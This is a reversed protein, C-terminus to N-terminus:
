LRHNNRLWKKCAKKLKKFKRYSIADITCDDNYEIRCDECYSRFTEWAKRPYFLMQEYTAICSGEANVGWKYRTAKFYDINRDKLEAIISEGNTTLCIFHRGNLVPVSDADTSKCPKYFFKELPNIGYSARKDKRWPLKTLATNSGDCYARMIQGCRESDNIATELKTKTKNFATLDIKWSSGSTKHSSDENSSDSSETSTM